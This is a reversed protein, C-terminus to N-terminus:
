AYYFGGTLFSSIMNREMATGPIGSVDPDAVLIYGTNDGSTAALSSLQRQQCLPRGRTSISDDVPRYFEEWLAPSGIFESFSGVAGMTNASPIRSEIADRIYGSVGSIGSFVGGLIAGPLNMGAAGSINGVMGGTGGGGTIGGMIQSGINAAKQVVTLLGQGKAIVQSLQVDIGVQGKVLAILPDQTASAINVYVRLVAMGTPYDVVVRAEISQGAPIMAGDLDVIGFPNMELKRSTYPPYNLYRGRSGADPHTGTPFTQTVVGFISTQTNCKLAMTEVGVYGVKITQSVSTHNFTIPIFKITSIYQLPDIITKAEPDITSSTGSLVGLVADAYTDSLIYQIFANLNGYSFLYYQTMGSGVIGVCYTGEEVNWNWPNGSPVGWQHSVFAGTKTPYLSDSISGDWDASARLVYASMNGIQAKYTALVDISLYAHWLGDEWRWNEIFYYRRFSPIHCYNYDPLVGGLVVQPSDPGVPSRLSIVPSIFDMGNNARCDPISRYSSDSTSPIATSNVEKTFRWFEVQFAM